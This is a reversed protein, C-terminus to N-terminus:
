KKKSKIAIPLSAAYHPSSGEVEDSSSISSPSDVSEDPCPSDPPKCPSEHQLLHSLADVKQEQTNSTGPADGKHLEPFDEENLQFKELGSDYSSSERQYGHLFPCTLGKFCCGEEWFRCTIQTLDHSFKCDARRCHGELFFSCPKKRPGSKDKRPKQVEFHKGSTRWQEELDSSYLVQAHSPM